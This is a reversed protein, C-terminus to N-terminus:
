SLEYFNLRTARVSCGLAAFPAVFLQAALFSSSKNLAGGTEMRKIEVPAFNFELQALLHKM